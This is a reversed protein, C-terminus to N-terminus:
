GRLAAAPVVRYPRRVPPLRGELTAARVLSRPLLRGLDIPPPAVNGPDPQSLVTRLAAIFRRNEDPLGPNVRIWSEMGWERGFRTLVGLGILGSWVATGSRGTDLLVYQGQSRLYQLGMRDLEGYIYRRGEDILPACRRVQPEADGLSALAAAHGFVNVPRPIRKAGMRRLLHPPGLAYGVRLGTLGFAHSFTQLHVLNRGEAVYRLFDPMRAAQGPEMFEPDSEDVLIV